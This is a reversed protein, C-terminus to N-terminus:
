FAWRMKISATQNSFDERAEVDYSAIIEAGNDLTTTLGVGVRGIWPDPQLGPTVFAAGGGVFASSIIAQDNITDYAVGVNANFQTKDSVKHALKLGMGLELAEARNSAVNLNLAGAGTETYSDSDIRTYDIRGEPAIQTTSSLSFTRALGAGLHFSTSDYQSRAVRTPAVFTIARAGDTESWGLDAQLNLETREDLAKSGYAVLQFTDTDSNSAAVRSKSDLQSNSYAFALGLKVTDNLDGDVGAVLGRSDGDYGSVGGRNDQDHWSGFVKVWAHKDM